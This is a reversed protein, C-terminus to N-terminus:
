RTSRWGQNFGAPREPRWPPRFGRAAHPRQGRCRRCPEGMRLFAGVDHDQNTKIDITGQLDTVRRTHERHGHHFSDRLLSKPNATTRVTGNAGLPGDPCSVVNRYVKGHPFQHKRVDLRLERRIDVVMNAIAFIQVSLIGELRTELKQPWVLGNHLGPEESAAIQYPPAHSSHRAKAIADLGDALIDDIVQTAATRGSSEGVATLVHAGRQPHCPLAPGHGAPGAPRGSGDREPDPAVGADLGPGSDWCKVYPCRRRSGLPIPVEGHAPLRWQGTRQWHAPLSDTANYLVAAVQTFTLDRGQTERLLLTFTYVQEGFAEPHWEFDTTRWDVPGSVGSTRVGVPTCGALLLSGLLALGVVRMQSQHRSKQDAM